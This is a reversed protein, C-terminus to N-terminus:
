KYKPVLKNSKQDMGIVTKTAKKITRKKLVSTTTQGNFLKTYQPRPIPNILRQINENPRSTEMVLLM